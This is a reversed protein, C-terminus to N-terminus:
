ELLAANKQSFERLKQRLAIVEERTLELDKSQRLYIKSNLIKEDDLYFKEM